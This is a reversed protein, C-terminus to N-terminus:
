CIHDAVLQKYYKLCWNTFLYEQVSVSEIVSWARKPNKWINGVAALKRIDEFLKGSTNKKKKM